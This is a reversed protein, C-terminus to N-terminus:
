SQGTSATGQYGVYLQKPGQSSDSHQLIKTQEATVHHSAGFDAYWTPDPTSLTTTLYAMPQHLSSSPLPLM